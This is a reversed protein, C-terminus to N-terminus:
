SIRFLRMFFYNRYALMIVVGHPMEVVGSSTKDGIFACTPFGCLEVLIRVSQTDETVFGWKSGTSSDGRILHGRTM